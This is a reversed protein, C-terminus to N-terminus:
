PAYLVEGFLRENAAVLVARGDPSLLWDFFGEAADPAGAILIAHYPNVLLPDSGLAVPVLGLVDAAARYAGVEALLFSDRQDAVQLTEGMGLGTVAYWGADTPDIGAASWIAAEAVATGSGDGRGVFPGGEAAIRAFAEAASLDAFSLVRDPPGLLVFRSTVLAEYRVAFGAAVFEAESSPDHTILVAAAGRRGLELVPATADGVVSIEVGPHTAEYAAALADMLGSDVITTGAGVVVREAGATCAALLSLAAAGAVLRKM